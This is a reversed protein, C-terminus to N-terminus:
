KERPLRAKVKELYSLLEKKLRNSTAPDSRSIDNQERVDNELDYLEVRKDEYFYLLKYKGKRLASQPYTASIYGDEM